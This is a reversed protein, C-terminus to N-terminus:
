HLERLFFSLLLNSRRLTGWHLQLSYISLLPSSVRITISEVSDTEKTLGFYVGSFCPFLWFLVSLNAECGLQRDTVAIICLYRCLVWRASTCDKFLTDFDTCSILKCRNVGPQIAGLSRLARVQEVNCVRPTIELRKLKTYVTHLGGVLHKLFLEYAQPLCIMLDADIEFAAIKEGRYDILKAPFKRM